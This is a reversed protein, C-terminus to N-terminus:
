ILGSNTLTVHSSPSVFDVGVDGPGEISGRNDIAATDSQIDIGTFAGVIHAGLVNSMISTAGTM